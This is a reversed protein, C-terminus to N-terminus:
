VDPQGESKATIVNSFNDTFLDKISSQALKELATDM